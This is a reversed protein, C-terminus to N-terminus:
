AITLDEDKILTTTTPPPTSPEATSVSVGATSVSVGVTTVPVGATSVPASANTIPASGQTEVDEQVFSIGEDQDNRGEEQTTSNKVKEEKIVEQSEEKSSYNVFGSCDQSESGTGQPIPENPIVTSQTRNITGSDQETDLSVATTAAREVKDGREEHVTENAVLNTPGSSQSIETAQGCCISAAVYEAETTSSAVVTQKKCQWSILRRGLFQYGGITSKMDLSEGTYDSDSYAELNFPSDDSMINPRSPTLYMLSGIMPRYLHVDVDEANEDKLLLMLTDMPTSATKVTLFGFKKLIEDVYKDHSIFIGDDKQTVQLGLFFTLEGMSSMQFKKHMMKEFEICMEKWARHAQHLGYLAKEVKYVRDPFEPDDFGPHQCVYVEEKIKGYLFASKVDIQYVVFDKFSAHALFLRIAEIRAVPAFIEDFDIGEEQTYGKKPAESSQVDGIVHDLSHDKHIRTNLTSPVLYTASINSMDVETNVTPFLICLANGSSSSLEWKCYLKGSGTSPTGVALPISIGSGLTQMRRGHALCKRVDICMNLPLM